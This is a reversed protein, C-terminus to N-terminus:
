RLETPKDDFKIWLRAFVLVSRTTSTESERLAEAQGAYIEVIVVSAARSVSGCRGLGPVFM